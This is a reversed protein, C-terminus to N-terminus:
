GGGCSCQYYEALPPHSVIGSGRTIICSIDGDRGQQRGEFLAEAGARRHWKGIKRSERGVAHHYDAVAVCIKWWWPSELFHFFAEPGVRHCFNSRNQPNTGQSDEVDTRYEM